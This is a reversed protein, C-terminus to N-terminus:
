RNFRSKSLINPIYNYMKLFPRAKELNGRFDIAAVIATTTVEADTM